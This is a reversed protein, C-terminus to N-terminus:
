VDTLGRWLCTVLPARNGEFTVRIVGAAKLRRLARVRTSRALGLSRWRTHTFRVPNRRSKFVVRDIEFFLLWGANGLKHRYLAVAFDHPVLAYSV